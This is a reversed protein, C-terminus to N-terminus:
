EKKLYESDLLKKLLSNNKDLTLETAENLNQNRDYHWAVANSSCLVKKLSQNNDFISLSTGNNKVIVTFNKDVIYGASLGVTILMIMFM